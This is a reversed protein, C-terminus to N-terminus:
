RNLSTSFWHGDADLMKVGSVFLGAHRRDKEIM